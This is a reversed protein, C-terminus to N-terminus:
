LILVVFTFLWLYIVNWSIRPCSCVCSYLAMFFCLTHSWNFSFFDFSLWVFNIFQYQFCFGIQLFSRIVYITMRPNHKIKISQSDNPSLHFPENSIPRGLELLHFFIPLLHVRPHPTKFIPCNEHVDYKYWEPIIIM